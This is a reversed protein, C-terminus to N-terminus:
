RKIMFFHRFLYVPISVFGLENILIPKVLIGSAINERSDIRRKYNIREVIGIEDILGAVIGLDDINKIETKKIPSM